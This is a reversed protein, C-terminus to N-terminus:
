TLPYIPTLNAPYNRSEALSLVALFGGLEDYM